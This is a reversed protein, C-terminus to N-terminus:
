QTPPTRTVEFRVKLPYHDSLDVQNGNKWTAPYTWDRLVAAGAPKVELGAGSKRVFVYDIRDRDIRPDKSPGFFKRHLANNKRDITYDRESMDPHVARYADEAHFKDFIDTLAKNRINAHVNFDGMIIAPSDFFLGQTTTMHALQEVNREEEGHSTHTQTIGVRM